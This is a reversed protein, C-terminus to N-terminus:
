LPPTSSSGEQRKFSDILSYVWPRFAILLGTNRSQDAPLTKDIETLDNYEKLLHDIKKLMLAHAKGSLKGTEFRLREDAQDFATSLFEDKIRAEHMRTIPGNKLWAINKQTLLRVKNDPHLEILKMKDLELLFQLSEEESVRYDRVISDPERGTVLLYFFVLLKPNEALTSEQSITLQSPGAEANLSLRALEYFNVDLLNCIEELRKVSFTQESFLRKVSAESLNLERAVHRYTMGKAKLCKKITDILQATQSM